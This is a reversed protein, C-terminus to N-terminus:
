KTSEYCYKIFDHNHKINLKEKMNSRHVNVTKPSCHLLEAIQISSKGSGLLSVIQIERRSLEKKIQNNERIKKLIINKYKESIYIEDNMVREFIDGLTDVHVEDASLMGEIQNTYVQNLFDKHGGDIIAIIKSNPNKKKISIALDLSIMYNSHIDVVFLDYNFSIKKIDFEDLSHFSFIITKEFNSSM